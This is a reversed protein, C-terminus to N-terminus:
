PAVTQYGALKGIHFGTGHVKKIAVRGSEFVRTVKWAGPLVIPSDTDTKPYHVIDGAKM